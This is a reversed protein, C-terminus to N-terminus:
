RDVCQPFVNGPQWQVFGGTWSDMQNAKVGKPRREITDKDPLCKCICDVALYYRIHCFILWAITYGGSRLQSQNILRTPAPNSGDFAFSSNSPCTAPDDAVVAKRRRYVRGCRWYPSLPLIHLPSRSDRHLQLGFRFPLTAVTVQSTEPQHRMQDQYKRSNVMPECYIALELVSNVLPQDQPLALVWCFTLFQINLCLAEQTFCFRCQYWKIMHLLDTMPILLGGWRIMFALDCIGESTLIFLFVTIM